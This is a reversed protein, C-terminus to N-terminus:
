NPSELHAITSTIVNEEYKAEKDSM